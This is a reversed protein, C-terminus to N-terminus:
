ASFPVYEHNEVFIIHSPFDSLHHLVHLALQQRAITCYVVTPVVYYM